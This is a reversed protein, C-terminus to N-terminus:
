VTEITVKLPNYVDDNHWHFKNNRVTICVKKAISQMLVNTEAFDMRYGATNPFVVLDDTVPVRDVNISREMIMDHSQCLNGVLFLDENETPGDDANRHVIVPDTMYKFSNANLNFRNLDLVVLKKGKASPKTHNVRAVTIGCQDHCALGPEMALTMGEDRIFEFLKMKYTSLEVNLIDELESEATKHRAHNAFNPKGLIGTSTAMMGFTAGDFTIGSKPDLISSKLEDMLANWAETANTYPIRIGGGINLIYPSLGSQKMFKLIDICIPLAESRFKLDPKYYHFAVGLVKFSKQNNLFFDTLAKKDKLLFGFTYDAEVDVRDFTDFRCLVKIPRQGISTHIKNLIHLEDWNDVTITVEQQVALHLYDFNKPGTATIRSSLFGAGLAIQLEHYSGVDINLNMSAAKKRLAMSKNPKSCYHFLHKVEYRELVKKLAEINNAFIDPFIVNLPSGFADVLSFLLDREKIFESVLDKILSPVKTVM